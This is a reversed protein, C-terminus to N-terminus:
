EVTVTQPGLDSNVAKKGTIGELAAIIGRYENKDAQIVLGGKKGDGGDWVLGIYHKKSHSLLIFSGLGLTVIGVGVATGVRRHVEQGYSVETVTNAKITLPEDKDHKRVFRIQDPDLFLKLDEGAKVSLFSGGSYTVGYSAQKNTAAFSASVIVLSLSLAVAQQITQM